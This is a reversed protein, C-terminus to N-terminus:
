GEIRKEVCDDLISTLWAAQKNSMSEIESSWKEVIFDVAGDWYDSRGQMKEYLFDKDIREKEFLEGVRM